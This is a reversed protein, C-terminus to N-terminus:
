VIEEDNDLQELQIQITVVNPNKKIRSLLTYSYSSELVCVYYKNCREGLLLDNIASIERDKDKENNIIFDYGNLKLFKIVENNIDYTLIIITDNKDFYNKIINIYKNEIKNKLIDRKVDLYNSYFDLVDDEIRLHITNLSTKNPKILNNITIQSKNIITENFPINRLINFFTENQVYSFNGEFNLNDFNLHVNDILKNDKIIYKEYFFGNNLNYKINLDVSNTNNLKNTILNLQSNEPIYLDNKKYYNNIIFNTVDSFNRKFEYEEYNLFAQEIKFNINNHDVVFVSYKSLFHNFKDINLIDNINSYNNSKISNLFKNIVM